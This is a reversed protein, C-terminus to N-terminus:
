TFSSVASELSEITESPYKTRKSVLARVGNAPYVCRTMSSTCRREVSPSMMQRRALFTLQLGNEEQNKKKKRGSQCVLKANQGVSVSGGEEREIV